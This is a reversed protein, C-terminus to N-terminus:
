VSIWPLWTQLHIETLQYAVSSRNTSHRRFDAWNPSKPRRCQYWDVSHRTIICHEIIATEDDHTSSKMGNKEICHIVLNPRSRIDRTHSGTSYYIVSHQLKQNCDSRSMHPQTAVYKTPFALTAPLSSSATQVCYKRWVDNDDDHRSANLRIADRQQSKDDSRNTEQWSWLTPWRFERTGASRIFGPPPLDVELVGGTPLRGSALWWGSSQLLDSPDSKRCSMM